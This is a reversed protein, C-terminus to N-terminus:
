RYAKDRPLVRLVYLMGAARDVAFRVRWDGVRLRFQPPNVDTLRVIDGHETEGFRELASVIRRRVPPDLRSADREAKPAWRIELSV